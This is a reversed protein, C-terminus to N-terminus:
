KLVAESRCFFESPKYTKLYEKMEVLGSKATILKKKGKKIKRLRTREVEIGCFMLILNKHLTTTNGVCNRRGFNKTVVGGPVRM